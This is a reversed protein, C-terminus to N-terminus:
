TLHSVLSLPAMLGSAVSKFIWGTHGKGRYDDRTLQELEEVGLWVSGCSEFDPISKAGEECVEGEAIPKAYLVVRPVMMGGLQFLLVGTIKVNVGAEELTERVGAEVFTEGIDVRGAPMFYNPKGGAIAAPENVLLVQTSPPPM